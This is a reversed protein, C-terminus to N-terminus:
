IESINKALVLVTDIYTQFFNKTRTEPDRLMLFDAVDMGTIPYVGFKRRVLSEFKSQSTGSIHSLANRITKIDNLQVMYNKLVLYPSHHFFLESINAVYEWRTWDPYEKGGSFLRIVEEASNLMIRRQVFRGNKSPQNLSYLIFSQEIYTEFHMFLKEFIREVMLQKGTSTFRSLLNLRGKAEQCFNFLDQYINVQTQMM